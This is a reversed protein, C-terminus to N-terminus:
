PRLSLTVGYTRPTNTFIKWYTTGNGPVALFATIDDANVIQYNNTLNKGWIGFTWRGDASEYNLRANLTRGKTDNYLNDYLRLTNADDTSIRASYNFDAQPTIKAGNAM